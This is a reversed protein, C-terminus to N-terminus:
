INTPHARRKEGDTDRWQTELRSLHDNQNGITDKVRTFKIGRRLASLAKPNWWDCYRRHHSISQRQIYSAVECRQHFCGDLLQAPWRSNFYHRSRTRRSIFAAVINRSYPLQSERYITSPAATASKTLICYVSRHSTVSPQISPKQHSHIGSITQCRHEVKKKRSLPIM